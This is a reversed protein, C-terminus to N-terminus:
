KCNKKRVRTISEQINNEQIPDDLIEESGGRCLGKRLSEKVIFTGM